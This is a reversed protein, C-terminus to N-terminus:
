GAFQRLPVSFDQPAPYGRLSIDHQSADEKKGCATCGFGVYGIPTHKLRTYNMVANVCGCKPCCPQDLLAHDKPLMRAAKRRAATGIENINRNELVKEALRDEDKPFSLRSVYVNLAHIKVTESTSATRDALMLIKDESYIRDTAALQIELLPAERAIELLATEDSVAQLSKKARNLNTGMWGPKSLGAFLNKM